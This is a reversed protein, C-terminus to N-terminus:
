YGGLRQNASRTLNSYGFNEASWYIEGSLVEWGLSGTHSLKQAQALYAENRQLPEEARRRQSREEAERLAPRVSPVIRSLREKSVYDTAGLKLAEVAADEALTGSVFIFPVEPSIEKALKLASAGDFLPLTYDALILDIGGQELSTRFAVQTDVRVLESAVREADLAAKILEADNPNMKLIFLECHVCGLEVRAIELRRV